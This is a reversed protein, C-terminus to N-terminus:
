SLYGWDIPRIGTGFELPSHCRAGIIIDNAGRIVGNLKGM